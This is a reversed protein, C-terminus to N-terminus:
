NNKLTIKKTQKKHCTLLIFCFVFIPNHHKQSQRVKVSTLWQRVATFSEETTIDYMVVVGDAKRFFQKTISRYRCSSCSSTAFKHTCSVYHFLAKEAEKFTFIHSHKTVAYSFFCKIQDNSRNTSFM